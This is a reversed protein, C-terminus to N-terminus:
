MAVWWSQECQQICSKNRQFDTFQHKSGLLGSPIINPSFSVKGYLHITSLVLLASLLSFSRFFLFQGSFKKFSICNFPGYLCFCVLVSYVPTPLSPHYIASMFQLMGVVQLHGQPPQFDPLWSVLEKGPLMVVM